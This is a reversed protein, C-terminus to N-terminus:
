GKANRDPTMGKNMEKLRHGSLLGPLCCQAKVSKTEARVLKSPTRGSSCGSNVRSLNPTGNTSKSPHVVNTPRPAAKAIAPSAENKNDARAEEDETDRLSEKFLESLRKRKDPPSSNSEVSPPAKNVLLNGLSFNHHVPTSGRSPTFDGKVSYYDDECDSELWPQSDFFTEDKSSTPAAAPVRLSPSSPYHPKLLVDPVITDPNHKLPSHIAFNDNKNKPTISFFFKM